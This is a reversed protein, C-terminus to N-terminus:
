SQEKKSAQFQAIETLYEKSLPCGLIMGMLPIASVELGSQINAAWFNACLVWDKDTTPPKGDLMTDIAAQQLDNPSVMRSM